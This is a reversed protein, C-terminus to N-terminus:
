KEGEDPFNLAASKGWIRKAGEDRAKAAEIETDFTGHMQTSGGEYTAAIFRTKGTSGIKTLVGLYKGGGAFKKRNAANHKRGVNRLNKSQNNLGNQDKHDTIQSAPTNAILRHMPM